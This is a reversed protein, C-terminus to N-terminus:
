KKKGTPAVPAPPPADKVESVAKLVGDVAVAGLEYLEAEGDRKAVYNVGSKVIGVKETTKGSNSVVTITITTTGFGSDPFKVSALDRL